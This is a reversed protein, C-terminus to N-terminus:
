TRARMCCHDSVVSANDAFYLYSEDTEEVVQEATGGCGVHAKKM